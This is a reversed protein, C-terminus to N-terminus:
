IDMSATYESEEGGIYTKKIFHPIWQQLKTEPLNAIM